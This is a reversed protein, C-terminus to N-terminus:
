CLIKLLDSDLEKINKFRLLRIGAQDLALNFYNDRRIRDPRNHSEDDLEIACKINFDDDILVFDCHWQSIRRFYGMGAKGRKYKPNISVIDVLRVQCMIELRGNIIGALKRYFVRERNTLFPRKIHLDNPMKRQNTNSVTFDGKAIMMMILVAVIIILLQGPHHFLYSIIDKFM